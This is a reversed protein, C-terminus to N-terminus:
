ELARISLECWEDTNLAHYSESPNKLLYHIVAHLNCYYREEQKAISFLCELM